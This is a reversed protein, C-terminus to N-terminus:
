PLVPVSFYFPDISVPVTGGAGDLLLHTTFDASRQYVVGQPFDASDPTNNASFVGRFEDGTAVLGAYDGLYPLFQPPPANAPVTALVLDSDTAFGDRSRELHTVWRSTAGSGVVQQYLFGVTGNDAVALSANTANLITRLDGSWTVGRDSSRRLHVTYIDGSGVRDAWTLYVTESHNPDVAISLTSGIREQGLTPSNSFPIAVNHAVIRGALHDGPDVLDRFPTPGTGGNDDRVVVVDSTAVNATFTRWGFYAVYVTHDAAVSPRVSPGDQGATGRTELRVAAYAGGGNTSVDVTATRDSPTAEFDNMGIYVRDAGGVTIARTYPQDVNARSAQVTMVTSSLPDHTVLENLSLSGTSRLIGAYLDGNDSDFAETMDATTVPSPVTARLAWTKGSDGTVFVPATTSSPGAPNPTFASAVMVGADGPHVALFPEADQNSEGALSAPIMNVVRVGPEAPGGGGGGGSGGGGNGGGGGGGCAMVPVVMAMVAVTGIRM